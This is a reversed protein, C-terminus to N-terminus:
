KDSFLFIGGTAQVSNDKSQGNRPSQLIKILM